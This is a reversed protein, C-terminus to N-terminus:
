RQKVGKRPQPHHIQHPPRIANPRRRRDGLQATPKPLGREWCMTIPLDLKCVDDVHYLRKFDGSSRQPKAM